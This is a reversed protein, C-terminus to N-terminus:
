RTVAFAEWRGPGGYGVEFRVETGVEILRTGDAIETCHFLWEAGTEDSVSGLGVDADFSEVMGSHAGFSVPNPFSRPWRFNSSTRLVPM